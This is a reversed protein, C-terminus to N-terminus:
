PPGGSPATPRKTAGNESPLPVVQAPKGSVWGETIPPNPDPILQERDWFPPHFHREVTAPHPERNSAAAARQDTL